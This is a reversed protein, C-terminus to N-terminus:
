ISLGGGASSAPARAGTGGFGAPVAGSPQIMAPIALQALGTMASSFRDKRGKVRAMRNKTDPIPLFVPPPDKPKPINPFCV